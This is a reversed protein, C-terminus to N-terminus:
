RRLYQVLNVTDDVALLVVELAGYPRPTSHLSVRAKGDVTHLWARVAPV